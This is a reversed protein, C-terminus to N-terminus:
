EGGVGGGGGGWFCFLILVMDILVWFLCAHYPHHPNSRPAPAVLLVWQDL